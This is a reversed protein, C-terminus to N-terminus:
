INKLCMYKKFLKKILDLTSETSLYLITYYNSPNQSDVSADVSHRGMM